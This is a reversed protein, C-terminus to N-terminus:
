DQCGARAYTGGAVAEPEPIISLCQKRDFAFANRDRLRQSIFHYPLSPWTLHATAIKGGFGLAAMLLLTAVIMAQLSKM